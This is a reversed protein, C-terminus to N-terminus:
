TRDTYEHGLEKHPQNHYSKYATSVSINGPTPTKGGYKGKAKYMLAARLMVFIKSNYLGKVFFNFFIKGFLM